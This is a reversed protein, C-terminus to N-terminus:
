LVRRGADGCRYVTALGWTVSMSLTVGTLPPLPTLVLICVRLPSAYKRMPGKAYACGEKQFVLSPAEAFHRKMTLRSITLARKKNM